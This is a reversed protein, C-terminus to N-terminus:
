HLALSLRFTANGRTTGIVILYTGSRPLTGSWRAVDDGEGAGQLTEGSFKSGSRAAPAGSPDPMFIQFVANKEPAVVRLSMRQGEQAEVSYIAREGRVVAGRLEVQSKGPAFEIKRFQDASTVPEAIGLCALGTLWLAVCGRLSVRLYRTRRSTEHKTNM